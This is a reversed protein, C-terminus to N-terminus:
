GFHRVLHAVYLLVYFAVAIWTGQEASKPHRTRVFELLMIPGVVFLLKGLVFPLTGGAALRAFLPNSEGFGQNLFMMTTVLDFMAVTVLVLTSLHVKANLM